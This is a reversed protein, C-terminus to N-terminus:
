SVEVRKSQEVILQMIGFDPDTWNQVNKVKYDGGTHVMYDGERIDQDKAVYIELLTLPAELKTRLVTNSSLPTPLTGAVGTLNTVPATRQGGTGALRKTSYTVTALADFEPDIM